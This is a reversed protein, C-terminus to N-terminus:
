PEIILSGEEHDVHNNQWSLKLMVKTKSNTRKAKVELNLLGVPELVIAEETNQFLLHGNQIGESLANLYNVISIRDQISEHKFEGKHSGM